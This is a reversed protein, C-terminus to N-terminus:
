NNKNLPLLTALDPQSSIYSVIQEKLKGYPHALRGSQTVHFCYKECGCLIATPQAGFPIEDHRVAYQLARTIYECAARSDGTSVCIQAIRVCNDAKEKLASVCDDNEYVADYIDNSKQLLAIQQRSDYHKLLKLISTKFRFCYKAVDGQLIHSVLEEGDLLDALLAQRTQSESPLLRAAAIGEANRGAKFYAYCLEAKVWNLIHHDRCSKLLYEGLAISKQPDINQAGYVIWAMLLYNNPYKKLGDEACRVLAAEDRLLDLRRLEEQLATVYEKERHSEAGILSDVTICFFNAIIPLLEIDPYCEGREWKSVTQFSVGVREAFAEQSLNNERRYKRINEAIRLAM